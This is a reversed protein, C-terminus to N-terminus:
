DSLESRAQNTQKNRRNTQKETESKSLKEHYSPNRTLPKHPKFINQSACVLFIKGWFLQFGLLGTLLMWLRRKLCWDFCWRHVDEQKEESPWSDGHCARASATPEGVAPGFAVSPQVAPHCPAIPGPPSILQHNNNNSNSNKQINKEFPKTTKNRSKIQDISKNANQEQM